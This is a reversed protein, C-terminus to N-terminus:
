LDLGGKTKLNQLRVLDGNEIARYAWFATNVLVQYPKLGTPIYRPELFLDL